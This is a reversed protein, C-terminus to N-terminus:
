DTWKLFSEIPERATQYQNVPDNWDAYGLAMGCVIHYTDPLNLHKRIVDPYEALAAQPCTELGHGRASLMVNQLFMGMDMWSGKCLHSELYFILACPANFFYYNKYWQEKRRVKDHYDIHLAGYLAMGCAKRRSKFPEQWDTPYYQYDPNESVNQERLAIIENSIKTRTNPGLCAVQWPQTNVGSPAYKAVELIQTILSEPVEKDLFARVSQRHRIAELVDLPLSNDAKNKV